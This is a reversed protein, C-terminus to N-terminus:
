PFSRSEALVDNQETQFHFLRGCVTVENVFEDFHGADTLGEGKVRNRRGRRETLREAAKLHGDPANQQVDRQHVQRDGADATNIRGTKLPNM